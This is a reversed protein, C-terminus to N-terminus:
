LGGLFGGGEMKLAINKIRGGQLALKLFKWLGQGIYM